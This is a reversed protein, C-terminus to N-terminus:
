NVVQFIGQVSATALEYKRGRANIEKLQQAIEDNRKRIAQVENFQPDNVPRSPAAGVLDALGAGTVAPAVGRFSTRTQATPVQQIQAQLAAIEASFLFAAGRRQADNFARIREVREKEERAREKALEDAADRAFRDFELGSTHSQREGMRRMRERLQINRRITDTSVSWQRGGGGSPNFIFELTSAMDPVNMGAFRLITRGMGEITTQISGLIPVSRALENAFSAASKEGRMYAESTEDLKRVLDAQMRLAFGVGAIAGGGVFLEFADKRPGRGGLNSKLRDMENAIRGFTSSAGADQATLVYNIQRDTRSM